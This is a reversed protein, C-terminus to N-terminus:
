LAIAHDQQAMRLCEVLVARHLEAGVEMEALNQVEGVAIGHADELFRLLRTREDALEARIREENRAAERALHEEAAVRGLLEPAALPSAGAM